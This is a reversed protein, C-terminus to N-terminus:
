ARWNVISMQIFVATEDEEIEDKELQLAADDGPIIHLNLEIALFEQTEFFRPLFHPSLTPIRSLFPFSSLSLYLSLILSLLYLFPSIERQTILKPNDPFWQEDLSIVM